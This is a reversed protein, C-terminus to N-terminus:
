ANRFAASRQLGNRSLCIRSFKLSLTPFCVCVSQLQKKKKSTAKKKEMRAEERKTFGM